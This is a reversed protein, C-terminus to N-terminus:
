KFDIPQRDLRQPQCIVLPLTASLFAAIVAGVILLLRGSVPQSLVAGALHLVATWFLASSIVCLLVGFFPHKVMDPTAYDRATALPMSFCEQM